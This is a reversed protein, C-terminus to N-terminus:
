RHGPKRRSAVALARAIERVDGPRQPNRFLGVKDSEILGRKELAVFLELATEGYRAAYDAMFNNARNTAAVVSGFGTAGTVLAPPEHLTAISAFLTESLARARGRLGVPRAPWFLVGIGLVLWVAALGFLTLALPHLGPYGLFVGWAVTFTVVFCVGLLVPGGVRDRM